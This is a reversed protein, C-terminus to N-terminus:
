MAPYDPTSCPKGTLKCYALKEVLLGLSSHGRTADSRSPNLMDCVINLVANL